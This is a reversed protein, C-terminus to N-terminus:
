RTGLRREGDAYLRYAGLARLMDDDHPSASESVAIFGCVQVFEPYPNYVAHPDGLREVIEEEGAYRLRDTVTYNVSSRYERMGSMQRQYDQPPSGLFGLHEVSDSNLLSQKLGLLLLSGALMVPEAAPRDAHFSAIPLCAEHRIGPKLRPVIKPQRPLTDTLLDFLKFDDENGTGDGPAFAVVHLDAVAKGALKVQSTSRASTTEEPTRTLSAATDLDFELDRYARQQYGKLVERVPDEFNALPLGAVKKSM